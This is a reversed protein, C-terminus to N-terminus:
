AARSVLPGALSAEAFQRPRSPTPNQFTNVAATGRHLARLPHAPLQKLGWLIVLALVVLGVIWPVVRPQKREVRIEAV